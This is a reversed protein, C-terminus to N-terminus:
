KWKTIIHHSPLPPPALYITLTFIEEDEKSSRHM